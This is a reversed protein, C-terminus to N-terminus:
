QFKANKVIPDNSDFRNTLFRGFADVLNSDDKGFSNGWYAGDLSQDEKVFCLYYDKDFFKVNYSPGSLFRHHAEVFFQTKSQYKGFRDFYHAQVSVDDSLYGSHPLSLEGFYLGEAKDFLDVSRASFGVDKLYQNITYDQLAFAEVYSAYDKVVSNVMDHNAQYTMLYNQLNKEGKHFLDTSVREVGQLLKANEKDEHNFTYTAMKTSYRQNSPLYVIVGKARLAEYEDLRKLEAKFLDNVKNVSAVMGSLRTDNTAKVAESAGLNRYHNDFLALNASTLLLSDLYAIFSRRNRYSQTSWKDFQGNTLQYYHFIDNTPASDVPRAITDAFHTVFDAINSGKAAFNKLSTEYFEKRQAEVYSADKSKDNELKALTWLGGKVQSMVDTSAVNVYSYLNDLSREANYKDANASLADIKAKVEKIEGDIQELYRISLDRMDIGYNKLIDTVLYQAGEGLIKTAVQTTGRAIGDLISPFLSESAGESLVAPDKAAAFLNKAKLSLSPSADEEAAGAKIGVASCSAAFIATLFSLCGLKKLKM